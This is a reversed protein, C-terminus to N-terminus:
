NEGKIEMEARRVARHSRIHSLLEEEIKPNRKRKKEFDTSLFYKAHESEHLAHDDVESVEVIKNGIDANEKEARKIHMKKVNQTREWGGYGFVELVKYRTEDSIKGDEDALLGSRLLEMMMSKRSAITTNIENETDFTVDDSGLDSATWTILEPKGEEGVFRNLRPQTANLKYLRLMIQALKKIANRVNEASVSIRTDDQEILMQIAVGSTVTSPVSSSRM